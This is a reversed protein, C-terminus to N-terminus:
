EPTPTVCWTRWMARYADELSATFGEKDMLQSHSMRERLRSRLLRLRSLNKTLSIALEKYAAPSDTALESLGVNSLLSYCLRGVHQEGVLTIVPVGMWLAECTTTSGNYPFTDLAIDVRNYLDLHSAVDKIYGVFEVREPSIGNDVFLQGYRAQVAPDHFLRQKLLLRSGPVSKLIGSWIAIVEPAIKPLANFSGFTVVGNYLAPLPAVLPSNVPPGYCLFGHPLRVLRETYYNDVTGEPDAWRDTLRYDMESLGTTNGYGLYTVQVPAPKRSFLQLRNGGTHGALDVLIDIRDERIRDASQEDSLTHIDRWHDAVGKLRETTRDPSDLNAYCFAEVCARDHAQLIPEFFYAVSHTRFDASVYGIKIRRDPDRDNSFPPIPEAHPRAHLKAWCLHEAFIDEPERDSRYHLALLLNTHAARFEPDVKLGRKLSAIAENINGQDRQVCALNNYAVTFSPDIEIARRYSAIAEESRYQQYLASGLNNHVRADNANTKIARQFCAIAEGPAGQDILINGLNNQAEFQDPDLEVARRYSAIAEEANGQIRLLNGLCCHAEAFDPELDTARRYAAIAQDEVGQDSLVNGLNFSADASPELFFSKRFHRRADDLKGLDYLALGLNNHAAAYRPSRRLAKAIYKSAEDPKGAQYALAGLHNLATPNDPELELIRKYVTEAEELRGELHHKLANGLAESVFPSSETNAAPERRRRNM